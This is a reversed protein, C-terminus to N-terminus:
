TKVILIMLFLYIFDLTLMKLLSVTVLLSSVRQFLGSAAM